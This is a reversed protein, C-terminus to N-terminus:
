DKRNTSANVDVSEELVKQAEIEEAKLRGFYEIGMPIAAVIFCVILFLVADVGIRLGALLVVGAVGVAVHWITQGHLRANHSWRTWVAVTSAFILVLALILGFMRWEEAMEQFRM